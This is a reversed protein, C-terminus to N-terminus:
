SDNLLLDGKACCLLNFNYALVVFDFYYLRYLPARFLSLFVYKPIFYIWFCENLIDFAFIQFLLILYTASWSYLETM